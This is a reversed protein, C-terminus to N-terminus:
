GSGVESVVVNSKLSLASKLPSMTEVLMVLLTFRNWGDADSVTVAEGVVAVDRPVGIVYVKVTVFVLEVSLGLRTRDALSGLLENVSLRSPLRSASAMAAPPPLTAGPADNVKVSVRAMWAPSGLGSVLVEVTAKVSAWFRPLKLLMM